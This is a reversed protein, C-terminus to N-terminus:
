NSRQRRLLRSPWVRVHRFGALRLLGSQTGHGMSMVLVDEVHLELRHSSALLAENIRPVTSRLTGFRRVLQFISRAIKPTEVNVVIVGRSARVSIPQDDLECELSAELDIVDSISM